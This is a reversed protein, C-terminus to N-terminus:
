LHMYYKKILTKILRKLFLYTPKQWAQMPTAPAMQPTPFADAGRMHDTSTWLMAKQALVDDSSEVDHDVMAACLLLTSRSPPAYSIKKESSPVVSKAAEKVAEMACAVVSTAPTEPEATTAAESASLALPKPVGVTPKEVPKAKERQKAM